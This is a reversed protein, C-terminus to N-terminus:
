FQEYVEGGTLNTIGTKNNNKNQKYVQNSKLTLATNLTSKWDINKSKSLKKKKWGAETAWFDTYAKEMTLKIDLNPHFKERESFWDKDALLKNTAVNLGKLYFEFNERWSLLFNEEQLEKVEKYEKTTDCETKNANQKRKTETKNGNEIQEALKSSYYIDLAKRLDIGKIESIVNIIDNELNQKYIELQKRNTM